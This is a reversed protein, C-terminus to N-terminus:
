YCNNTKTKLSLAQRIALKKAKKPLRQQWNIQNTPGLAVGGGRWIPNRSSGVRARGTGKQRWPKRGGGSVLGRSKTQASSRRRNALQLHYATKLLQHNKVETEFLKPTKLKPQQRGQNDYATLSM